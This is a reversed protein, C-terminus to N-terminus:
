GVQTRYPLQAKTIFNRRRMEEQSLGLVHAAEDVLREVVYAAEPRGAGRYADVPVSNTFVCAVEAYIAPIDYLGSLMKASCATPIYPGFNSLYAGMNATTAVRLGLIKGAGDVAMEAKSFHDRAQSDSLFGESRTSCWTVPRGLRRAAWLVLVQEPYIFIKMGFSGGVDPTIVRFQEAPLKFIREALWTRLRHSGQTATTLTFHGSAEDYAGLAARPEMPNVVVRNNVLTLSVVQPANAFAADTKAKDGLEWDLCLNGPAEPWIQASDPDRAKATDTISALEEYDVMIADAADEAQELTEAVIFAVPDGVHRVRTRALIPHGPQITGSDAKGTIPALCPNDAITEADLDASTFVGRVGPMARATETDIGTIEAHAYPSRLLCSNLVGEPRYDDSFRGAGTLLRQDEVRRLPQGIGFKGM